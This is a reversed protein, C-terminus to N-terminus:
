NYSMTYNVKAAVPGAKVLAATAYYQAFYHLTGAGGVINVTPTNQTAVDKGIVIQTSTDGNLLQVEVPVAAADTNKLNGSTFNALTSDYEFFAAATGTAASCGTLALAFPTKGAVDGVATFKSSSVSPLVVNTANSDGAAAGNIQCTQDTVAGTFNVTGDSAQAASAAFASAGLIAATIIGKNISKVQEDGIFQERPCSIRM